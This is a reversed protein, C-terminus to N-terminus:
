VITSIEWFHINNLPFSIHPLHEFNQQRRGDSITIQCMACLLIAFFSLNYTLLLMHVFLVSNSFLWVKGKDKDMLKVESARVFPEATDIIHTCEDEELFGQISLVLPRMSLTELQVTEAEAGKPIMIERKFGIEIGPRNIVFMVHAHIM